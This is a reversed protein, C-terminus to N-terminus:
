VVPIELANSCKKDKTSYAIVTVKDGKQLENTATLDTSTGTFEGLEAYKDLGETIIEGGKEIEKIFWETIKYSTNEPFYKAGLNIRSGPKLEGDWLVEATISEAKIRNKTVTFEFSTAYDIEGDKSPIGNQDVLPHAIATTTFEPITNDIQHIRNLQTYVLENKEFIYEQYDLEVYETRVEKGDEYTHRIKQMGQIVAYGNESFVLRDNDQRYGEIKVTIVPQPMRFDICSMLTFSLLIACLTLILIIKKNTQQRNM